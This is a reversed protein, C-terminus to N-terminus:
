PEEGIGALADPGPVRERDANHGQRLAVAADVHRRTHEGAHDLLDSLKEEIELEDGRLGPARRMEMEEAGRSGHGRDAPAVGCRGRLAASMAAWAPRAGCKWRRPVEPVTVVTPPM